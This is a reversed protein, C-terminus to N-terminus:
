GRYTSRAVDLWVLAKGLHAASVVAYQISRWMQLALNLSKEQVHMRSYRIVPSGVIDFLRTSGDIRHGQRMDTM